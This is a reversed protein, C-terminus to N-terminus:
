KGKVFEEIEARRFRVYRGLRLLGPLEQQHAYVWTPQVRLMNAVEVPTALANRDADTSSSTEMLDFRNPM